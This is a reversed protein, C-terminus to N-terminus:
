QGAFTPSEAFLTVYDGHRIATQEESVDAAASSGDGGGPVNSDDGGGAGDRPTDQSRVHPNSNASVSTTLGGLGDGSPTPSTRPTHM